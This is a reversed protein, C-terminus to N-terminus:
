NRIPRVMRIWEPGERQAQERFAAPAFRKAASFRAGLSLVVLHRWSKTSRALATEVGTPFVDLTERERPTFPDLSRVTPQQTLCREPRVRESTPRAQSSAGSSKSATAPRGVISRGRCRRRGSRHRICRGSRRRATAMSGCCRPWRRLATQGCQRTGRISTAVEGVSGMEASHHNRGTLLAQRTPSCLATTHFRNYSLGGAALREMTPMECPGGFASTAGFGMAHILVILVNPAGAPPRLPVIPPASTDKAHLAPDARVPM